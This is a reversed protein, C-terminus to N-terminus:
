KNSKIKTMKDTIQRKEGTQLDHKKLGLADCIHNCKHKKFFLNIGDEGLDTETFQKVLCSIAPDTLVYENSNLRFGQLDSVTLYGRTASFTWHSFADLTSAYDSENLNGINNSWKAFSGSIFEEISFYGKGPIDVLKIDIFRVSKESPSKKLFDDALYKAVIQTVIVDQNYEFTDMEDNQFISNKAVCEEYKNSSNKVMAAYAFRLNGRTFPVPCLLINVEENTYTICEDIIKENKGNYKMLNKFTELNGNFKFTFIKANMEEFNGRSFNLRNRDLKINKMIKLGTRHMSCNETNMITRTISTIFTDLLDDANKLKYLQV